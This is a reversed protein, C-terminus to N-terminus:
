IGKMELHIRVQARLFFKHLKFGDRKCIGQLAFDDRAKAWASVSFNYQEIMSSLANAIFSLISPGYIDNELM